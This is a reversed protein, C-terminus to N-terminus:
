KIEEGKLPIRFEERYEKSNQNTLDDALQHADRRIWTLSLETESKKRMKNRNQKTREKGAGRGALLSFDPVYIFSMVFSSCDHFIQFDHVIKFTM